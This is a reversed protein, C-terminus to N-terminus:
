ENDCYLYSVMRLLEGVMGNWAGDKFAGYKGDKVPNIVFKFGFKESLKELLDKCYGEYRDNGIYDKEPVKKMLYPSNIITTVRLTANKLLILADDRGGDTKQHFNMVPDWTAIKNVGKSTVKVVDLTFFTRQGNKQFKIPGSAGDFSV